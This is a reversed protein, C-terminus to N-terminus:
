RGGGLASYNSLGSVVTVQNRYPELAKLTPSFEVGSGEAPIRWYPLSMGNGVYFFGLRPTPRGANKALASIPIMADLLPLGLVVGTGRLFTRRPLARKAIMM